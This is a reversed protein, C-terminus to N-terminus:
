QALKQKGVMNNKHTRENLVMQIILPPEREGGEGGRERESARESERARARRLVLGGLGLEEFGVRGLWSGLGLEGFWVRGLWGSAMGLFRFAAVVVAGAGGERAARAEM